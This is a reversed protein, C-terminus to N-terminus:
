AAFGGECFWRSRSLADYMAAKWSNHNAARAGQALDVIFATVEESTGRQAVRDLSFRLNLLEEGAHSAYLSGLRFTAFHRLVRDVKVTPWAAPAVVGFQLSPPSDEILNASLWTADDFDDFYPHITQEAAQRPQFDLKAKNCEACAPILNAPVITLAAHGAQPLYHDLTSVTRQTCIPCIDNAPASKIADYMPRAAVSRVFTRGYVNKMDASSLAGLDTTQAISFLSQAAGMALYASEAAEVLPTASILRAKVAEDRISLACAEAANRANITPLPLRRM